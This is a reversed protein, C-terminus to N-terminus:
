LWKIHRRLIDRIEVDDSIWDAYIRRIYAVKEEAADTLTAYQLMKILYQAENTEEFGNKFVFPGREKESTLGRITNIVFVPATAWEGEANMLVYKGNSVWISFGDVYDYFIRIYNRKFHQTQHKWKLTKLIERLCVSFAM